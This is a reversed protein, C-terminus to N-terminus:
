KKIIRKVNKHMVIMDGNPLTYYRSENQKKISRVDGEIRSLDINTTNNFMLNQEQNGNFANVYKDEFIGKNLSDVVDPLIKRYKRTRRKNIIALAEGGEAHMQRGKHNKTGLDIDNGSAHSGGELFELGGEGYEDSQATVQRARIKAVAFSTWMAAIAPIAFPFGLQSWILASATVLSSAQAITNLAEQRRQAAELIKKGKLKNKRKKSM